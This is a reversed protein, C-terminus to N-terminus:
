KSTANVRFAKRTGNDLLKVVATIRGSPVYGFFASENSDPTWRQASAFQVYVREVHPGKPGAIMQQGTGRPRLVYTIEDAHLHRVCSALVGNGGVHDHGARVARYCVEGDPLRRWSFSVDDITTAGYGPTTVALATEVADNADQPASQRTRGASGACGALLLVASALLFPTLTLGMGRRGM